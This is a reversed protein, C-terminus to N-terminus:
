ALFVDNFIKINWLSDEIEYEVCKHIIYNRGDKEYIITIKKNYKAIDVIEQKVSKSIILSDKSSFKDKFKQDFQEDNFGYGFFVMSYISSASDLVHNFAERHSSMYNNTMSAKYKTGGPTVININSCNDLLFKNDHTAECSTCDYVWDISGHPKFVRVLFVDNKYYMRPSHLISADFKLRYTGKFGTVVQIALSDCVYEIIRDYNPTFIDLINHNAGSTEKLYYLLKYLHERDQIIDQSAIIDQELVFKATIERVANLFEDDIENAQSMGALGAELGNKSIDDKYSKWLEQVESKYEIIREEIKLTLESMGPINYINSLGTGFVLKPFKERSLYISKIEQIIESYKEDNSKLKM